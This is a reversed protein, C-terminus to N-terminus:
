AFPYQPGSTVPYQSCYTGVGGASTTNTNWLLCTNNTDAVYQSFYCNYSCAACALLPLLLCACMTMSSEETGLLLLPPQFQM